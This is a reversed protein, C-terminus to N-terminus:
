VSSVDGKPVSSTDEEGVLYTCRELFLCRRNWAINIQELALCKTRELFLSTATVFLSIALPGFSSMDEAGVHSTDEAGVLSM